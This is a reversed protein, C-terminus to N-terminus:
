LIQPLAGEIKFGRALKCRSYALWARLCPPERLSCVRSLLSERGSVRQWLSICM